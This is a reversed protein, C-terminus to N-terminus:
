PSSWRQVSARTTANIAVINWMRTPDRRRPLRYAPEAVGRLERDVARDLAVLRRDTV